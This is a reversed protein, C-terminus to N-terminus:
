DADLRSGRQAPSPDPLPHELASRKENFEGRPYDV